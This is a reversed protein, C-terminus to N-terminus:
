TVGYLFFLKEFHVRVTSEAPPRTRAATSRTISNALNGPPIPSFFYRAVRRKHTRDTVGTALLFNNNSYKIKEPLVTGIPPLPPRRLYFFFFYVRGVDNFIRIFAYETLYVARM